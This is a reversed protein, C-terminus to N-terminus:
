NIVREDEKIDGRGRKIEDRRANESQKFNLYKSIDFTAISCIQSFAITIRYSAISQKHAKMEENTLSSRDVRLLSIIENYYTTIEFCQDDGHRFGSAVPIVIVEKQEENDKPTEFGYPIGVYCKGSSLTFMLMRADRVASAIHSIYKNDTSAQYIIIDFDSDTKQKTVYEVPEIAEGNEGIRALASGARERSAMRNRARYYLNLILKNTARSLLMAVLLSMSIISYFNFQSQSIEPFLIQVLDFLVSSQSTIPWTVIFILASILLFFLGYSFCKYVLHHGQYKYIRYKTLILKSLFTYGSLAIFLLALVGHGM